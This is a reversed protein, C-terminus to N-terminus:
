SQRKAKVTEGAVVQEAKVTRSRDEIKGSALAEDGILRDGIKGTAIRCDLSPPPLSTVRSETGLDGIGAVFSSSGGVVKALDDGVGKENNSTERPQLSEPLASGALVAM